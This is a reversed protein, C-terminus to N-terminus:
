QKSKVVSVLTQSVCWSGQLECFFMGTENYTIKKRELFIFYTYM